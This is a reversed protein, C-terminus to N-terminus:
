PEVRIFPQTIGVKELYFWGNLFNWLWHDRISWLTNKENSYFVFSSAMVEMGLLGYYFFM